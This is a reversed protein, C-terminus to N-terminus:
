NSGANEGRSAVDDDGVDVSASRHTHNRRILLPGIPYGADATRTETESILVGRTIHTFRVPDLKQLRPPARHARRRVREGRM